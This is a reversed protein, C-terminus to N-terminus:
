ANMSAQPATKHAQGGLVQPTSIYGNCSRVPLTSSAVMKPIGAVVRCGAVTLLSSVDVAKGGVTVPVLCCHQEDLQSAVMGLVYSSSATPGSTVGM